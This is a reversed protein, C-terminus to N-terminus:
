KKGEQKVSLFVKQEYHSGTAVFKITASRSSSSSNAAINVKVVRSQTGYQEPLTIWSPYETATWNCQYCLANLYAVTAASGVSLNPSVTMKPSSAYQSKAAQNVSVTGTKPGCSIKIEGSRANQNNNGSASVKVVTTGAPGSSPQPPPTLWDPKSSVTWPLDATVTFFQEGGGETYSISNSIDFLLFGQSVDCYAASGNKPQVIVRCTRASSTLNQSPTVTIVTQGSGGNKPSISCWNGPNPISWNGTATVTFQQPGGNYTFSLSSSSVKTQGNAFYSVCFLFSVAIFVKKM